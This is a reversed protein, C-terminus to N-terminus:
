FFFLNKVNVVKEEFNFDRNQPLPVATCTPFFEVYHEVSM